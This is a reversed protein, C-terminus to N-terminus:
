FLEKLLDISNNTTSTHDKKRINVNFQTETYYAIDITVVVKKDIVFDLMKSWKPSKETNLYSYVNHMTIKLAKENFLNLVLPQGNHALKLGISLYDSDGKTKITYDTIVGKYNGNKLKPYVRTNLDIKM